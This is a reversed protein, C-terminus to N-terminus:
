SCLVFLVFGVFFCDPVFNSKHTVGSIIIPVCTCVTFIIYELYLLLFLHTSLETNCPSNSISRSLIPQEENHTQYDIYLQSMEMTIHYTTRAPLFMCVM